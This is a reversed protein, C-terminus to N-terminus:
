NILELFQVSQCSAYEVSIELRNGKHDVATQLDTFKWKKEAQRKVNEM